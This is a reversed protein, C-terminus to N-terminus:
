FTRPSGFPGGRLCFSTSSFLLYYMQAAIGRHAATYNKDDWKGNVKVKKTKKGNEVPLIKGPRNFIPAM